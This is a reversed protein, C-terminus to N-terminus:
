NKPLTGKGWGTMLWWWWWGEMGSRPTGPQFSIANGLGTAGFSTGTWTPLTDELLKPNAAWSIHKKPSSSGVVQSNETFMKKATLVGGGWFIFFVPCPKSVRIWGLELVQRRPSSVPSLFALPLWALCIGSYICTMETVSSKSHYCRPLVHPPFLIELYLFDVSRGKTLFIFFMWQDPFRTLNCYYKVLGSKGSIAPSKDKSKAVKKPTFRDHKRDRYNSWWTAVTPDTSKECLESVQFIMGNISLENNGVPFLYYRYYWFFVWACVYIYIIM